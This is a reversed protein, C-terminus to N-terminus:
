CRAKSCRRPRPHQVMHQGGGATNGDEQLLRSGHCRTEVPVAHM